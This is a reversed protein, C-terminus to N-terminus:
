RFVVSSMQSACQESVNELRCKGQVYNSMYQEVATYVYMHPLKPYFRPIIGCEINQTVPSQINM